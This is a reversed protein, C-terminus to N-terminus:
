NVVGELNDGKATEKQLDRVFKIQDILKESLSSKEQNLRDLHMLSDNLRQILQLKESELSNLQNEYNDKIRM